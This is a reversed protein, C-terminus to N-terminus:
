RTDCLISRDKALAESVEREATACIILFDHVICIAGFLLGYDHRTGCMRLNLSCCRMQFAKYM